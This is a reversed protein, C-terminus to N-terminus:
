EVIMLYDCFFLFLLFQSSLQKRHYISYTHYGQKIVWCNKTRLLRCSIIQAVHFIYAIRCCYGQYTGELFHFGVQNDSAVAPACHVSVFSPFWPRWVFLTVSKNCKLKRSKDCFIRWNCWLLLIQYRRQLSIATNFTLYLTSFQTYFEM